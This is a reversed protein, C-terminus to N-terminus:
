GIRHPPLEFGVVRGGRLRVQGDYREDGTATFSFRYCRELELRGDPARRPTMRQLAITEDLLQLDLERCYARVQRTAHERVKLNQWWALCLCATVALWFLDSLEIWMPTEKLTGMM